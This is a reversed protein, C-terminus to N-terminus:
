PQTITFGEQILFTKRQQFYQSPKPTIRGMIILTELEQPSMGAVKAAQEVTLYRKSADIPGVSWGSQEVPPNYRNYQVTRWYTLGIGILTLCTMALTM